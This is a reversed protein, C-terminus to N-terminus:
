PINNRSLIQVCMDDGEFTLGNGPHVDAVPGIVFFHHHFLKALIQLRMAHLIPHQLYLRQDLLESRKKAFPTDLGVPLAIEEDFHLNSRAFLLPARAVVHVAIPGIVFRHHLFLEALIQGRVPHLIARQLFLIVM